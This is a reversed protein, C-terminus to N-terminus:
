KPNSSPGRRKMARSVLPPTRARIKRVQTVHPGFSNLWWDLQKSDLVTATVQYQSNILKAKQNSSLPSELLHVAADKSIRFSLHVWKGTGFGFEGAEEFSKLEFDKPRSFKLTMCRATDIRHLALSRTDGYGRFRCVLYLRVGQQALGLPMVEAKLAQGSANKYNVQLWSNQFLATSVQELVQPRISPPVLPQVPSVVRVKALWEKELQADSREALDQRAQKFLPALSRTLSHPLLSNLQLEALVLLLCEQRNLGPLSFGNAREKWRYQYPKSSDDREVDFHVCITELSRQVTRLDRDFGADLLQAHLDVASVRQKRPIRKLLELVIRVTELADPRRPM